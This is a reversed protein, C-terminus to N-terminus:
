GGMERSKEAYSEIQTNAGMLRECLLKVMNELVKMRVAAVSRMLNDLQTKGIVFGASAEVAVITASRPYATLVGMEGTTTRPQIDGLVTGSANTAMLKGQLLILMESSPEGATYVVEGRKYSQPRCLKILQQAETMNFGKFVGVKEIISKVRQIQERDM